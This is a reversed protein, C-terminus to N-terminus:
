SPEGMVSALIEGFAAPQDRAVLHGAGAVTHVALASRAARLAVVDDERVLGHAGRILIMPATVRSAAETLMSRCSLIEEVFTWDLHGGRREITRLYERARAPDVDPVVDVLVVGRIPMRSAALVAVFGGLSGGVLWAPAGVSELIMCADRVYDDLRAGHGGTDGHGRQDVAIARWGARALRGVIPAFVSRSEGGAHLLLVPPGEGLESCVLDTGDWSRYRTTKV